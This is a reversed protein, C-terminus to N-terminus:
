LPERRQLRSRLLILVDTHVQYLIKASGIAQITMNERSFNRVLRIMDTDKSGVSLAKDTLNLDRQKM